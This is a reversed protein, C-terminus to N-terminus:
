TYKGESCSVLIAEQNNQHGTDPEKLQSRLFTNGKFNKMTNSPQETPLEPWFDSQALQAESILKADQQSIQSHVLCVWLSIYPKSKSKMDRERELHNM